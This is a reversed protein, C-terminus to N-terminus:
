FPIGAVAAIARRIWDPDRPPSVAAVHGPRATQGAVQRLADALPRWDRRGSRQAAAICYADALAAQAGNDPQGAMWAARLAQLRGRYHVGAAGSQAMSRWHAANLREVERGSRWIQRLVALSHRDLRGLALEARTLVKRWRRNRAGYRDERLYSLHMGGGADRGAIALAAYGLGRSRAEPLAQSSAAQRRSYVHVLPGAHGELCALVMDLTGGPRRPFQDAPGVQGDWVVVMLQACRALYNALRRYPAHAPHTTDAETDVPIQFAGGAAALSQALRAAFAARATEAAGGQAGIYDDLAMPLPVRLRVRGPMAHALRLAQAAFLQDAGDALPSLCVLPTHPLAAAALRLLAYLQEGAMGADDPHVDRHGSIALVFPLGAGLAADSMADESM